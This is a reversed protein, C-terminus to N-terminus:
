TDHMALKDKRTPRQVPAELRTGQMRFARRAARISRGTSPYPTSTSSSIAAWLREVETQRRAREFIRTRCLPCNGKYELWEKICDLHYIHTCNPLKKVVEGEQYETVCICCSPGKEGGEGATVNLRKVHANEFADVRQLMEPTARVRPM